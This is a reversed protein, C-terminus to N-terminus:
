GYMEMFKDLAETAAIEAEEETCGKAAFDAKSKDSYAKAGIAKCWYNCM